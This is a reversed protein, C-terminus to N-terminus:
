MVNSNASTEFYLLIMIVSSGADRQSIHSSALFPKVNRKLNLIDEQYLRRGDIVFVVTSAVVRNRFCICSVDSGGAVV